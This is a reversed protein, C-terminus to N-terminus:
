EDSKRGPPIDGTLLWRLRDWFGGLFLREVQIVHLDHARVLTLLNPLQREALELEAVKAKSLSFGSM